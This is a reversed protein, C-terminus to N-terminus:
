GFPRTSVEQTHTHTHTNYSSLSLSFPAPSLCPEHPSELGTWGELSQPPPKDELEDSDTLALPTTVDDYRVVDRLTIFWSHDNVSGAVTVYLIFRSYPFKTHFKISIHVNEGTSLDSQM